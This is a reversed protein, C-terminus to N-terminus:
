GWKLLDCYLTQFEPLVKLGLLPFTASGVIYDGEGRDTIERNLWDPEFCTKGWQTGSLIVPFRATSKWARQQGAHLNLRLKATGDPLDIVERYPKIKTVTTM